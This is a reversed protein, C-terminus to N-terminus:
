VESPISAEPKVRDYSERYISNAIPIKRVKKLPSGLELRRFEPKLESMVSPFTSVGWKSDDLMAEPMSLVAPPKGDYSKSVPTEARRPTFPIFDTRYVSNVGDPPALQGFPTERLFNEKASKVKCSGKSNFDSRYTTKNLPLAHHTLPPFSRKDKERAFERYTIEGSTAGASVVGRRHPLVLEKSETSFRDDQFSEGRGGTPIRLYPSSTMINELLDLIKRADCHKQLKAIGTPVYFPSTGLIASVKHASGTV